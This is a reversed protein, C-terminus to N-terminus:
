VRINTINGEIIHDRPTGLAHSLFESVTSSGFKYKFEAIWQNGEKVLMPTVSYSIGCRLTKTIVQRSIISFTNQDSLNSAKVHAKARHKGKDKVIEAKEPLPLPEEYIFINEKVAYVRFVADLRNTEYIVIEADRSFRVFDEWLVCRIAASHPKWTKM